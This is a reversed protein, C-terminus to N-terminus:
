KHREVYITMWKLTLLVHLEEWNGFVNWLTLVAVQFVKIEIFVVIVEIRVNLIYYEKMQVAIEKYKGRKLILQGRKSRLWALLSVELIYEKQLRTM